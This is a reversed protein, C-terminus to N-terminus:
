FTTVSQSTVSFDPAVTMIIEKMGNWPDDASKESYHKGGADFGLTFGATGSPLPQVVTSQAGPALAGVPAAFGPGTAVVNALTAASGNVLTLKVERTSRACGVLLLVASAIVLLKKM